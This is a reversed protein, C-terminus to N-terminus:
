RWQLQYTNNSALDRVVVAANQKRQNDRAPIVDLLQLRYPGHVMEGSTTLTHREGNIDVRARPNYDKDPNGPRAIIVKIDDLRAPPAQEQEPAQAPTTPQAREEALSEDISTRIMSSVQEVTLRDAGAGASSPDNFAAPILTALRPYEQMIIDNILPYMDPDITASAQQVAQIQQLVQQLYGLDLLIHEVPRCDPCAAQLLEAPTLSTATQDGPGPQKTSNGLGQELRHIRQLSQQISAMMEAQTADLAPIEGAVPRSTGTGTEEAPDAPAPARDHTAITNGPEDANNATATGATSTQDQQESAGTDPAAQEAASQAPQEAPDPLNPSPATLLPDQPANLGAPGAFPDPSPTSASGPPPPLETPPGTYALEEAGFDVCRTLFFLGICLLGVIIFALKFKDTRRWQKTGDGPTSEQIAENDDYDSM